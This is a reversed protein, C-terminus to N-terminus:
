HASALECIGCPLSLIAPGDSEAVFFKIDVWDSTGLRWPLQVCGYQKIVTGNYATLVVETEKMQSPDPLGSPTLSDPFMQKYM